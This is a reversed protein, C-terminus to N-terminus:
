PRLRLLSKAKLLSSLLYPSSTGEDLRNSFSMSSVVFFAGIIIVAILLIRYLTRFMSLKYTQKRDALEAMTGLNRFPRTRNLLLM